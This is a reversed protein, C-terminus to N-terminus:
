LNGVTRIWILKVTFGIVAAIAPLNCRGTKAQDVKVGVRGKVISESGESGSVELKFANELDDLKTGLPAVYYDAGTLTEMRRVTVLGRSLEIAALAFAYAGAEIADITNALASKTRADPIEWTALTRFENDDDRLRFEQPPKHHKDLVVAASKKYTEELCPLLGPHRSSMDDLPLIPITM